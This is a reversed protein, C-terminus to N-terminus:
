IEKSFISLGYQSNTESSPLCLKSCKGNSLNSSPFCMKEESAIILYIRGLSSGNSNLSWTVIGFVM